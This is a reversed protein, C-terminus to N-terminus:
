SWRRAPRQLSPQLPDRRTTRCPARTLLTWPLMLAAGKAPGHPRHRRVPLRQRIAPRCAPTAPDGDECGSAARPVNKQGLRAEDERCGSRSGRDLHDQASRSHPGDSRAPFTKKFARHGAGGTQADGLSHQPHQHALLCLAALLDSITRESYIVGFREEIVRKLDIRRWRVM